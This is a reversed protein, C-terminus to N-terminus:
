PLDQPTNFIIKMTKTKSYKLKSLQCAALEDSQTAHIAMVDACLITVM